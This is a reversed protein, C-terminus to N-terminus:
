KLLKRMRKLQGEYPPKIAFMDKSFGRKTVAREYSFTKFGHEGRYRGMGSQHVGGFPLNLNTAQKIVDNFCISGSPIADAIEELFGDNKSFAYVALPSTLEELHHFLGTRDRYTVVPLVPGFIEEQMCPLTENANPVIAPALYLEGRDDEGVRIANEPILARIRDFHTSNVIRALDPSPSEPYHEHLTKSAEEIFRDHLSDPILVYDPAMCTQGANFFKGPIIRDVATALNVETDIICPCKGGLELTVPALHSAAAEAYLRGIRESGTYFWADFNQGLLAQGVEPGGQVVTFHAADFSNAVIDAMLAATAPAMESPKLIVTNGAGIASVAPALALQLPYNWASAILTTGFADRRIESRAPFFYFPNGARKPRAWGKLKKRYLRVESILFYVEALYAELPPKGLDESLAHLLEDTRTELESGFRSLAQMRAELPRTRGSSFYSRQAEMISPLDYDPCDPDATM